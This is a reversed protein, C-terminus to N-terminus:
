LDPVPYPDPDALDPISEPADDIWVDVYTDVVEAMYSRKPAGSTGFCAGAGIVRGVTDRVEGMQREHRASVCYVRHGRELAARLFKDWLDPDRTYTDDFDIALIM